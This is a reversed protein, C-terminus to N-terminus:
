PQNLYADMFAYLSDFYSDNLGLYHMVIEHDQNILFVNPIGSVRYLDYVKSDRDILIPYDIGYRKIVEERRGQVDTTSTDVGILLVGQNKYAKNFAILNPIESLCIPCFTSYFNIAVLKIAPDQFAEYLHFELGNIDKLTFDPAEMFIDLRKATFSIDSKELILESPTKFFSSISTDDLLIRRNRVDFYSKSQAQQNIFVQGNKLSISLKSKDKSISALQLQEDWDVQYRLLEAFQRLPIMFSKKKENWQPAVDMSLPQGGVRFFYKGVSFVIRETLDLPSSISAGGQLPHLTIFFVLLLLFISYKKM